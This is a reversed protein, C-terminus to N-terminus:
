NGDRFYARISTKKKWATRRLKVEWCERMVRYMEEKMDRDNESRKREKEVRKNKDHPIHEYPM